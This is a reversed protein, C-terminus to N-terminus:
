IKGFKSLILKQRNQHKARFEPSDFDEIDRYTRAKIKSIVESRDHKSCHIIRKETEENIIKEAQKNHYIKGNFVLIENSETITIFHYKEILFTTVADIRNKDDHAFQIPSEQISKKLEEVNPIVSAAVSTFEDKLTIGHNDDACLCTEPNKCINHEGNM